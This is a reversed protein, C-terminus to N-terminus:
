ACDGVSQWKVVLVNESPGAAHLLGSKRISKLLVFFLKVNKVPFWKLLADLPVRAGTVWCATLSTGSAVSTVSTTLSPGSAVGPGM